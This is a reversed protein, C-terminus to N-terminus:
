EGQLTGVDCREFSMFRDSTKRAGCELVELCLSYMECVDIDFTLKRLLPSKPHEVKLNIWSLEM